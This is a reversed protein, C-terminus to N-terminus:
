RPPFVISVLELEAGAEAVLVAAVNAEVTVERRTPRAEAAKKTQAL